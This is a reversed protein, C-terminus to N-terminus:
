NWEVQERLVKAPIGAVLSGAPVDKTVVAGAAIVSGSGVIVGPLIMVRSGIWVHDEIVVPATRVHGNLEHADSDMITVDHSIACGNGIKIFDHCRIKCSSNFFSGDGLELCGGSFVIIDDDYFLSFSGKVIMRADTDLRLLVAKGMSSLANTGIRLCGNVNIEANSSVQVKCSGTVRVKALKRCSKDVYRLKFWASRAATIIKNQM